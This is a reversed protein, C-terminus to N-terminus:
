RKGRLPCWGPPAADYDTERPPYANTCVRMVAGIESGLRSSRYGCEGCTAIVPLARLRDIEALLVGRDRHTNTKSLSMRMADRAHQARIEREEPTM